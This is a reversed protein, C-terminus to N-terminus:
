DHEDEAGLGVLLEEVLGPHVLPLPAPPGAEYMRQLAPFEALATERVAMWINQAYWWIVRPDEWLRSRLCDIAVFGREGLGQAWHAPWRNNLPRDGVGPQHPIPASFLLVPALGALSDLFVGEHSPPIHGVVELCIALGFPRSATFPKRLDHVRFDRPEIQLHRRDVWTGDVGLVEQTGHEQFVALWDGTGCGYDVVSTPRLHELVLPVVVQAAPRATEAILEYIDDDYADAFDGSSDGM